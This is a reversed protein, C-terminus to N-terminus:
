TTEELRAIRELLKPSLGSDTESVGNQRDRFYWGGVAGNCVEVDVYLDPTNWELSLGWSEATTIPIPMPRKHALAFASTMEGLAVLCERSAHSQLWAEWKLREDGM